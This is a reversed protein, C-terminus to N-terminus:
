PPTACSRNRRKERRRNVPSATRPTCRRGQFSWRDIRYVTTDFCCVRRTASRPTRGSRLEVGHSRHRRHAWSSSRRKHVVCSPIYVVGPAGHWSQTCVSEGERRGQECTRRGRLGRGRRLEDVNAPVAGRLTGVRVRPAGRDGRPEAVVGELRVRRERHRRRDRAGPPRRALMSTRSAAPRTVPERRSVEACFSQASSFAATDSAILRAISGSPKCRAVELGVGQAEQESVRAAGEVTRGETAPGPGRARGLAARPEEIAGSAACAM